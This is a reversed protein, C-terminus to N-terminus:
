AVGRGRNFVKQYNRVRGLWTALRRKVEFTEQQEWKQKTGSKNRETWYLIFKQVEEVLVQQDIGQEVFPKLVSETDGSFFRKAEEQPTEEIDLNFLKGESTNNKYNKLEQKHENTTRKNNMQQENHQYKDYKLITILRYKSTKQQEIQQETEFLNLIREVKSQEIGTEKALKLRGTVFQGRNLKIIKGNWLFEKEEHNAKMLLHIWLHVYHSDTYYGKDQIGRHIKIWGNNMYKDFFYVSQVPRLLGM